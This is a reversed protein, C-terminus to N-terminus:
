FRRMRISVSDMDKSGTVKWVLFIGEPGKRSELTPHAQMNHMMNLLGSYELPASLSLGNFGALCARLKWWIVLKWRNRGLGLWSRPVANNWWLGVPCLDHFNKDGLASPMSHHLILSRSRLICHVNGPVLFPIKLALSRLAKHVSKLKAPSFNQALPTILSNLPWPPILPFCRTMNFPLQTGPGPHGLGPLLHRVFCSVLSDSAVKLLGYLNLCHACGHHSTHHSALAGEGPAGYRTLFGLSIVWGLSSQFNKNRCPQLRVSM